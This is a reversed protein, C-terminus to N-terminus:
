RVGFGHRALMQQGRGSQVFAMWSRASAPNKAGTTVAMVYRAEVNFSPPIAVAQVADFSAADSQYVLAADAEGLAVKARVLRANSEQSVVQAMVRAGFDSGLAGDARTLVQRAYRGVPVGGTGIVVRRARPLQDFSTIAAPNERPVILVMANGAFDEPKGTLGAEGLASMHELNASAYVDAPAGQEIQLRLVQSGAHTVAVRVGPHEAQYAEAVSAFGDRLSSAAYVQLVQSDQSCGMCWLAILIVVATRWLPCRQTPLTEPSM